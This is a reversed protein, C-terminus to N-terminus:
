AQAGKGSLSEQYEKITCGFRKKFMRKLYKVDSFGSELCVDVLPLSSDALYKRAKEFRVNNVYDRFNMNLNDRIFHSLYSLTVGESKALEALTIRSSYHTDIYETIRRLRAAKKSHAYSEARNLEHYPVYELMRAFLHFINGMCYFLSLKDSASYDDVIQLIRRAIEDNQEPSLLATLDNELVELNRFTDLYDQCFTSALQIYVIKVGSRQLTTIEHPENPNFFFISHKEVCFSRGPMRIQASGDLVLCLEMERHLHLNRYVIDVTDIKVHHLKPYLVIEYEDRAPM